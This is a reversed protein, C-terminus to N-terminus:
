LKGYSFARRIQKFAQHIGPLQSRKQPIATVDAQAPGKTSGGVNWRPESM